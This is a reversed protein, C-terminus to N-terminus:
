VNCYRVNIGMPGNALETINPHHIDVATGVDSAISELETGSFDIELESTWQSAVCDWANVFIEDCTGNLKLISCTPREIQSVKRIFLFGVNLYLEM